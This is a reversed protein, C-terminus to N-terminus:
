PLMTAEDRLLYVDVAEGAAVEHRDAHLIAIGDACALTKVIGTHQDGASTAYWTGDSNRLRVRLLHMKGTKKKAPNELIARVPRQRYRRRGSMKLLAPRVLMQFTLLTSVPNGPLSFIPTDGKVGFYTPGGPKIAVKWFQESVGLDSLVERVLDRDGASVGASTIVVDARLGEQLRELHSEITDRAIGVVIPICGAARVSAALAVSNSDVIEGPQPHGGLEVLEDGTAVIAVAPM